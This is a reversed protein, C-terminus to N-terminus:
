FREVGPGPLPVPQHQQRIQEMMEQQAKKIGDVVRKVPAVPINYRVQLEGGGAAFWFSAPKAPAEGMNVNPMAGAPMMGGMMDVVLYAYEIMDVEAVLFSGGPARKLTATMAPKGPKGAQVKKILEDLAKPAEKGFAALMRKETYAVEYIMPLGYITEMTKRQMEQIQLQFEAPLNPNPVPKFDITIRDVDLGGSKRFKETFKMKTGMEAWKVQLAETLSARIAKNVAERTSAAGKAEGQIVACIGGGRRCITETVRGSTDKLAASLAVFYADLDKRAQANGEGAMGALLLPKLMGIMQDTVTPDIAGALTVFVKGGPKNVVPLRAKALKGLAEAFEGGKVARFSGGLSIEDGSIRVVTRLLDVNKMASRAGGAFASGMMKQAEPGQAAVGPLGPGLAGAELKKLFADIAEKHRATVSKVDMGAVLDDRADFAGAAPPSVSALMGVLKKDDGAVFRGKKVVVYIEKDALAGGQVELYTSVEGETKSAKGFTMALFKAIDAEAALSAGVAFKPKKGVGLICVVPKTQDMAKGSYKTLWGTMTMQVVPGTGPVVLDVLKKIEALSKAPTPLVLWAEAAEPVGAPRGGSAAAKAAPRTTPEAASAAVPLSLAGLLVMAFVTRVM